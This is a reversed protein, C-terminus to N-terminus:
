IVQFSFSLVLLKVNLSNCGIAFIENATLLFQNDSFTTFIMFAIFSQM